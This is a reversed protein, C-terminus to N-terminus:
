VRATMTPAIEIAAHVSRSGSDVVLAAAVTHAAPGVTAPMSTEDYSDAISQFAAVAQAVASCSEYGLTAGSKSCRSSCCM